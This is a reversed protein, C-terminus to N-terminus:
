RSNRPESITRPLFYRCRRERSWPRFDHRGWHASRNWQGCIARVGHLTTRIIGLLAPGGQQVFGLDGVKAEVVQAMVEGALEHAFTDIQVGHTLQESVCIDGHRQTVGM